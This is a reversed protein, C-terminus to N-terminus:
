IDSRMRFSPDDPNAAACRGPGSSASALVIGLYSTEPRVIALASRWDHWLPSLGSCLLRGWPAVKRPTEASPRLLLTQHSLPTHDLEHAAQSRCRVHATM